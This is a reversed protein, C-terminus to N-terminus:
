GSLDEDAVDSLRRRIPRNSAIWEPFILGAALAAYLWPFNRRPLSLEFGPTFRTPVFHYDTLYALGAVGVGRQTLTRHSPPKDWPGLWKRYIWAWFVCAIGNLLLGTGTFKFVQSQGATRHGWLIHSIAGTVFVKKVDRPMRIRYM